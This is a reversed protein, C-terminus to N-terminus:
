GEQGKRGKRKLAGLELAKRMQNEEWPKPMFFQVVGEGIEEIVDGVRAYGTLLIRFSHPCVRAAERLFNTGSIEPMSLDSIIVDPRCESLLRRADALSSATQVDYEDGFTDRFSDLLIVEDDFYFVPIKM